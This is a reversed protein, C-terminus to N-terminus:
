ILLSNYNSMYPIAMDCIVEVWDLSVHLSLRILVFIYIRNYNQLVYLFHHYLMAFTRRLNSLCNLNADYAFNTLHVINM